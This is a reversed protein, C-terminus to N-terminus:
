ERVAQKCISKQKGKKNANKKEKFHHNQVGDNYTTLAIGEGLQTLIHFEIGNRLQNKVRISSSGRARSERATTQLGQTEALSGQPHLLPKTASSTAMRARGGRTHVVREPIHEHDFHTHGQNTTLM